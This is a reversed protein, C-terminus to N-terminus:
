LNNITEKRQIDPTAYKSRRREKKELLPNLSCLGGLSNLSGPRINLKIVTIITYYSSNVGFSKKITTTTVTSIICM